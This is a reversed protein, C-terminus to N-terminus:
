EELHIGLQLAHDRLLRGIEVFGKTEAIQVVRSLGDTKAGANLLFQVMDLRGFKAAGELATVGNIEARPENVDAGLRILLQATDLQGSIAAGQLATTGRTAAAPAQVDAGHDLLTQIIQMRLKGDVSAVTAAQLATLGNIPHAAANVNAGRHLALEVFELNGYLSAAQLLTRGGPVDDMSDIPFSATLMLHILDAREACFLHEMCSVGHGAQLRAVTAEQKVLLTFIEDTREGMYKPPHHMESAVKLLASGYESLTICDNSGYKLLLRVTDLDDESVAYELTATLTGMFGSTDDAGAGIDLLYELVTTNWYGRFDFLHTQVARNMYIPVGKSLLYDISAIDDFMVLRELITPGHKVLDLGEQVLMHITCLLDDSFGIDEYIVSSANVDAGHKVLLYIFSSPQAEFSYDRACHWTDDSPRRQLALKLPYFGAHAGGAGKGRYSSANPDVGYQLLRRFATINRRATAECLAMELYYSKVNHDQIFQALALSGDQSANIIDKSTFSVAEEADLMVLMFRIKDSLGAEIKEVSEFFDLGNITFPVTARHYVLFEIMHSYSRRVAVTVASHGANTKANVNAGAEVLRTVMGFTGAQIAWLLPTGFWDGHWEINAGHELLLTVSDYYQTTALRYLLSGGSDGELIGPYILSLLKLTPPTLRDAQINEIDRRQSKAGKSYLFRALEVLGVNLAADLLPGSTCVARVTPVNIDLFSMLADMRKHHDLTKLLQALPICDLLNNSVLYATALFLAHINRTDSV